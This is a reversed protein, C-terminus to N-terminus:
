EGENVMIKYGEQQPGNEYVERSVIYYTEEKDDTIVMESPSKDVAAAELSFYGMGLMSIDFPMNM